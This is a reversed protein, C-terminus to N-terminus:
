NNSEGSDGKEIGKEKREKCRLRMCIVIKRRGTKTYIEDKGFEGFSQILYFSNGPISIAKLTWKDNRYSPMVM